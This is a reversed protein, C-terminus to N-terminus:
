SRYFPNIDDSLRLAAKFDDESTTPPNRESKNKQNNNSCTAGRAKSEFDRRL